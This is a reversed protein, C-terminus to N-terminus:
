KLQFPPLNNPEPKVTVALGSTNEDEYKPPVAYRQVGKKRSPATKESEIRVKYEGEPAGDGSGYTTLSFTGDSEIKGTATREGPKVPVFVVTGETLPQGDALLVQGKVPYATVSPLPGPHESDGCGAAIMM